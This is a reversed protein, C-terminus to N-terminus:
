NLSPDDPATALLRFWPGYDQMISFWLGKCSDSDLLDRDPTQVVWAKQELENELQGASWGAYGVFGRLVIGPELALRRAEDLDLNVHCELTQSETRWQFSAFTLRDNGVPGGYFVPINALAGLGPEDVLDAVRKDALRNLILGFAGDDPDHSAIYLITRRFNPDL